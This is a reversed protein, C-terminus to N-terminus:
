PNREAVERTLYRRMIGERMGEFSATKAITRCGTLLLSCKETLVNRPGDWGCKESTGDM